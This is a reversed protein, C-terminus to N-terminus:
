IVQVVTMIGQGQIVLYVATETTHAAESDIVAGGEIKAQADTAILVACCVYANDAAPECIAERIM